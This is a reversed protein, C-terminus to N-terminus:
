ECRSTSRVLKRDSRAKAIGVLGLVPHAVTASKEVTVHEVELRSIENLEIDLAHKSRRDLSESM